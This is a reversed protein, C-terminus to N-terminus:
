RKHRNQTRSEPYNNERTHIEERIETQMETAQDIKREKNTTHM